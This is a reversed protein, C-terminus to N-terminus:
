SPSKGQGAQPSASGKQGGPAKLAEKEPSVKRGPIARLLGNTVVWESEKLGDEIVRFAEVQTGLTVGRRQAVQNEDVVLVYAGQQDFGVAVQPVMLAQRERALPVRVRAFLGPLILGSPNPFIGRLLLTGTSPTVSIASFDLHGRYPYGPENVLGLLVPLKEKTAQEVSKGSEGIVRFLDKENINFYVYIPDIQSIQVLPTFEGAGVLNGPDVLRRDIRGSFPATVKTYGLNLKALDRNAKAAVVAARYSDQQFRWNDYDTQAAAKLKVLRSYRETEIIAHDLNAQQQLIQAEAQALQAEYTNQQILFLVMGEKVREGDKFFVKELYGQVRARLTVTNIAQTNGTFELYDTVPRKLPQSVTVKPPPPPAYTSKEGCGAPFLSVTLLLGWFLRWFGSLAIGQRAMM